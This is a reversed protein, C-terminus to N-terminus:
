ECGRKATSRVFLFMEYLKDIVHDEFYNEWVYPSPFDTHNIPNRNTIEYTAGIKGRKMAEVTIHSNHGRANGVSELVCKLKDSYSVAKQQLNVKPEVSIQVAKPEQEM